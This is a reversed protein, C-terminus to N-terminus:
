RMACRPRRPVAAYVIRKLMREHLLPATIEAYTTDFRIALRRIEARDTATGNLM